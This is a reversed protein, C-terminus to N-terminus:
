YMLVAKDASFIDDTNLTNHNTQFKSIEINPKEILNLVLFYLPHNIYRPPNKAQMKYVVSAKSSNFNQQPVLRNECHVFFKSNIFSSASICEINEYFLLMRNQIILFLTM